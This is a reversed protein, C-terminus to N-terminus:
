RPMRSSGLCAHWAELWGPCHSDMSAEPTLPLGYAEAVANLRALAARAIVEGRRHAPAPITALHLDGAQVGGRRVVALV